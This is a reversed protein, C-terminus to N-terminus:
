DRFRLSISGHRSLFHYQRIAAPEVRRNGDFPDVFGIIHIHDGVGAVQALPLVDLRDALLGKAGARDFSHGLIRAVQEDVPEDEWRQRGARKVFSLVRQRSSQATGQDRLEHNPDRAVM